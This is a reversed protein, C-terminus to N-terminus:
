KKNQNYNKKWYKPYMKNFAAWNSFYVGAGIGIFLATLGLCWLMSEWWPNTNFYLFPYPAEEKRPSNKLYTDTLIFPLILILYVLGETFSLAFTWKAPTTSYETFIFTFLGILPIVLHLMAQENRYLHINKYKEMTSVGPLLILLVVLFTLTTGTTAIYKFIFIHKNLTFKDQKWSKAIDVITAISAVALVINSLVTFYLITTWNPKIGDEVSELVFSLSASVIVAAIIVANLVLSSIRQKKNM